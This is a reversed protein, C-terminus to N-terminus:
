RQTVQGILIVFNSRGISNGDIALSAAQVVLIRREILHM